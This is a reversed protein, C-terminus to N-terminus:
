RDAIRSKRVGHSKQFWNQLAVADVAPQPAVAYLFSPPAV